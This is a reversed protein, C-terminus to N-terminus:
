SAVMSRARAALRVLEPFRSEDGLLSLPTKGRLEPHPRELWRFTGPGTFSHRLHGVIRAVVRLRAEDDGTPVASDTPSLWRQLTRPAVRLDSAIDSRCGRDAVRDAPGDM